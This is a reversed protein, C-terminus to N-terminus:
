TGEPSKLHGLMFCDEYSEQLSWGESEESFRIRGRRSMSSVATINTLAVLARHKESLSRRRLADELQKQSSM